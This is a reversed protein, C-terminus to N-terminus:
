TPNSFFHRISLSKTTNYKVSPIYMCISAKKYDLKYSKVKIVSQYLSKTHIATLIGHNQMGWLTVYNSILYCICPTIITCCTSSFFDVYYDTRVFLFISRYDDKNASFYHEALSSFDMIQMPLVRSQMWLQHPSINRNFRIRLYRWYCLMRARASAIMLPWAVLRTLPLTLSRDFCVTLLFIGFCLDSISCVSEMEYFKQPPAQNMLPQLKDRFSYSSFSSSKLVESVRSPGHAWHLASYHYDSAKLRAQVECSTSIM